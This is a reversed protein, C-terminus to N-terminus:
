GTCPGAVDFFRGGIYVCFGEYDTSYGSLMSLPDSLSTSSAYVNGSLERLEIETDDPGNADGLLRYRWLNGDLNWLDGLVYDNNIRSIFRAVGGTTARFQKPDDPDIMLYGGDDTTSVKMMCNGSTIVLGFENAPIPEAAVVIKGHNGPTGGVVLTTGIQATGIVGTTWTTAEVRLSVNAAIDEIDGTTPGTWSEIAVSEGTLIARGTNNQVLLTSSGLLPKGATNGATQRNVREILENHASAKLSEGVSVKNLSM